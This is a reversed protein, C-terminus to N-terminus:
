DSAAGIPRAKKVQDMVQSLNYSAPDQVPPFLIYTELEKLWLQQGIPLMNWDYVYATVPGALAGGLGFMTGQTEGTAMEFPDRKINDVLSWHYTVAGILADAPNATPVMTYYIKWNKFRV